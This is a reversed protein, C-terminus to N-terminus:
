NVRQATAEILGSIASKLNNVSATLPDDDNQRPVLAMEYQDVKLHWMTKQQDAILSLCLTLVKDISIDGGIRKQIEHMPVIQQQSFSTSEVMSIIVDKSMYDLIQDIYPKVFEDDLILSRGSQLLLQFQQIDKSQFARLLKILVDIGGDQADKWPKMEQSQFLDVETGSLMAGVILYKICRLRGQHDGSEDYSKFSEFFEVRAEQWEKSIMRMKGGCERIVALLKPHAITSKLLKQCQQYVRRTQLQDRNISHMQLEIILVDLQSNAVRQQEFSSTAPTFVSPDMLVDNDMRLKQQAKLSEASPFVLERLQTLTSSLDAFQMSHLQHQALKLLLKTSLKSKAEQSLHLYYQSSQTKQVLKAIFQGCNFDAGNQQQQQEKVVNNCVYDFTNGINKEAYTQLVTKTKDLLQSYYQLLKDSASPTNMRAYCKVIQKIAKFRWQALPGSVQQDGEGGNKDVIEAFLQVASELNEEKVSKAHYYTNEVQVLTDDSDLMAQDNDEDEDEYEFGYDEDEEEEEEMMFDDNDEYDSM